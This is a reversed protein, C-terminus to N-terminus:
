SVLSHVLRRSMGTHLEVILFYCLGGEKKMENVPSVYGKRFFLAKVTPLFLSWPNGGLILESPVRAGEEAKRLSVNWWPPGQWM